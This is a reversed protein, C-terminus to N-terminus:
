HSAYYPTYIPNYDCLCHQFVQLFLVVLLLGLLLRVLLYQIQLNLLRGLVLWLLSLLLLLFLDTSVEDIYVLVRSRFSLLSFSVVM